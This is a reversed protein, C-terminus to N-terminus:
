RHLLAHQEVRQVLLFGAAVDVLQADVHVPQVHLAELLGPLGREIGMVDQSAAEDPLAFQVLCHLHHAFPNGQREARKVPAGLRRQFRGQIRQGFALQLLAEHQVLRGQQTQHQYPCVGIPMVQHAGMM